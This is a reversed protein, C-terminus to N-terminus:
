TIKIITIIAGIFGTLMLILGILGITATIPNEKAIQIWDKKNM